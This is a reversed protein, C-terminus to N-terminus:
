CLWNLAILLLSFISLFKGQTKPTPAASESEPAVDVEPTEEKIAEEWAQYPMHKSM